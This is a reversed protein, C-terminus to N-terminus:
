EQVARVQLILGERGVVRVRDGASIPEDSQASWDEMNVFVTGGAHVDTRAVGQAGMLKDLDHSPQQLHIDLTKTAMLWMFGGSLVSVVVALWPNVAAGGGEARFLYVSGVILALIAAGLFAMQMRTRRIAMVLLVLAVLLVFLAWVNVPLNYIQWGAVALSFFAGLELFGTGPTLLALVAAMSGFVLFLYAINPSLLFEEM